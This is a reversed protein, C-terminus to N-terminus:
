LAPSLAVVHADSPLTTLVRAIVGSLRWITDADL